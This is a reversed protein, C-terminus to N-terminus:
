ARTWVAGSSYRRLGLRFATAGLAAFGLAAGIMVGATRADFEGVLRTPLGTVFAAPVATFLLLKTVGGFVDLPYSSLILIAQFGLDSQEGRGGFFLTLSGMFVLFGALVTAGCLTAVVYLAAREGTAGGAMVFLVPGFFLDGLLGTDIKRVLLYALPDVPLALVADLEGDAALEGLKRANGLLGLSIGCVTLLVSFLLLVQQQDWGRISGVKGFFLIWFIVWAVDNAIMISVQVWFSRRNAWAENAAARFTAALIRM